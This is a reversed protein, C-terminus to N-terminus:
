RKPQWMAIEAGAPDAVVSRWGTPGERPELLVMAGLARARDTASHIEEM